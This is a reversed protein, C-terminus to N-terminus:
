LTESSPDEFFECGYVPFSFESRSEGKLVKRLQNAGICGGQHGRAPTIGGSFVPAEPGRYTLVHGSTAVGFERATAGGKDVVIRTNPIRQLSRWLDTEVWSPPENEPCYLFAIVDLQHVHDSVIRHLHEVTARSCPCRPHLFVFVRAPADSHRWRDPTPSVTGLRGPTGDYVAIQYWACGIVGVWLSCLLFFSFRAM